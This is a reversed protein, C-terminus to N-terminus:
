NKQELNKNLFYIPQKINHLNPMRVIKQEQVLQKLVRYITTLRYNEKLVSILEASTRPREKLLELIEEALQKAFIQKVM